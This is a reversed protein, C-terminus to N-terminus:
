DEDLLEKLRELEIRSDVISLGKDLAALAAFVTYIGVNKGAELDSITQRRCGVKEAVWQMTKGLVIREARFATGFEASSFCAKM